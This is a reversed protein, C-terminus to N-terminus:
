LVVRMVFDVKLRFIERFADRADLYIHFRKAIDLQYFEVLLKQM